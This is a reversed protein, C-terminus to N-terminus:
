KEKFEATVKHCERRKQLISVWPTNWLLATLRSSQQPEWAGLAPPQPSPLFAWSVEPANLTVVAQEQFLRRHDQCFLDLHRDSTMTLASIPYKARLLFHTFQVSPQIIQDLKEVNGEQRTKFHYKNLNKKEKQCASNLRKMERLDKLYTLYM